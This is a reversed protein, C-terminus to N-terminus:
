PVPLADWEPLPREQPTARSRKEDDDSEEHGEPKGAPGRAAAGRPRHRPGEGGVVVDRHDRGERTGAVPGGAGRGVARDVIGEDAVSGHEVGPCAARGGEDRRGGRRAVPRRVEREFRVPGHDHGPDVRAVFPGRGVSFPPVIEEDGGLVGSPELRVGGGHRRFSDQPGPDLHVGEPSDM